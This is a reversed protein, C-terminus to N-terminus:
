EEDDYRYIGQEAVFAGMAAAKNVCTLFAREEWGFSGSAASHKVMDAVIDRLLCTTNGYVPQEAIYALFERGMERGKQRALDPNSSREISWWDCGGGKGKPRRRKVFSLADCAHEFGAPPAAPGKRFEALKIVNASM